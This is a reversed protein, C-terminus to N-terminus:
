TKAQLFMEIYLIKVYLRDKITMTAEYFNIIFIYHPGPFELCTTIKSGRNVPWTVRLMRLSSKAKLM